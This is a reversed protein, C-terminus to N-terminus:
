ENVYEEIWNDLEGMSIHRLHETPSGDIRDYLAVGKSGLWAVFHKLREELLLPAEKDRLSAVFKPPTLSRLESPMLTLM